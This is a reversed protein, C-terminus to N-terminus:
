ESEVEPRFAKDIYPKQRRFEVPLDFEEAVSGFGAALCEKEIFFVTFVHFPYDFAYFYKFKCVAFIEFFYEDFLQFEFQRRILFNFFEGTYSINQYSEDPGTFEPFKGNAWNYNGGDIVIGGISTAHGNIYKTASHTIINAGNEFGHEFPNSLTLRPLPIKTLLFGPLRL